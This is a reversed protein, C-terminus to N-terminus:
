RPGRGSWLRDTVGTLFNNRASLTELRAFDGPKEKEGRSWGVALSSLRECADVHERFRLAPYEGAGRTSVLFPWDSAQALLLERCAQNLTSEVLGSAGAGATACASRFVSSARRLAPQMWGNTPDAWTAFTANSGWTSADPVARQIPGCTEMYESPTTLRLQSDPACSRRVVADLFQPGEFWWHGFLEADFPAVLLPHNGPAAAGERVRESVFHAAHDQVAAGAATRDYYAKEPGPTTRSTIRRYKIGTFGGPAVPLFEHVYAPDAEHILDHHFERYRPDGPYGGDRSWVRWASAPDRGFAASGGDTLVPAFYGLLPRPTARMLGSTEVVFWRVGASALLPDLEPMWACEPLWCGAPAQGFRTRFLRHGVELQIRAWDGDGLLFPLIPHTGASFLLELRGTARFRGFAGPLDGGLADWHKIRALMEEEHFRALERLEPVAQTRIREASALAAVKTLHARCRARLLPDDLMALLTPSLNLALRWELRDREWGEMLALLPLYCEFVAEHLWTEEHFQEHDPRRVFPLHAHLLLVLGTRASMPPGARQGGVDRHSM